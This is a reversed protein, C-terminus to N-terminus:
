CLTQTNIPISPSCPWKNPSAIQVEIEMQRIIMDNALPVVLPNMYVEWPEDERFHSGWFCYRVNKTELNSLAPSLNDNSAQIKLSIVIAPYEVRRIWFSNSRHAAKSRATQALLSSPSIQLSCSSQKKTSIVTPCPVRSESIKPQIKANVMYQVPHWSHPRLYMSLLLSPTVTAVNTHLM